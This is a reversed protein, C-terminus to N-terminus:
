AASPIEAYRRKQKNKKHIFVQANQNLHWKSQNRYTWNFYILM